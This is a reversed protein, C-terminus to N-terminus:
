VVGRSEADIHARLDPAIGLRDALAGLFQQEAMTDPEISLRAATYLQLAEAESSVGAILEDISAPSNLENALFEEAGADLGQGSLSGIIRQQEAQDLRGDSAAAAIMARIYSQAADNSVSEPEFGTGAPAVEPESPGSILPRGAQYNQYAKYALGGVLALAGLKAANVAVSRGTRTGLILAGLGGLAAGTGLKNRSIFDTIQGMLEDTSQGGGMKEVLERLGTHEGIKEAGERAGQTAQGFVQGLLDGFGSDQSETRGGSAARDSGATGGADSKGSQETFQRLLDGLGGGGSTQPTGADSAPSQRESFQRMLDDLASGGSGGSGAAGTDGRQEGSTSGGPGGQTFQRLLDGIDGVGGQGSPAAQPQPNAGRVMMEFLSKADFM